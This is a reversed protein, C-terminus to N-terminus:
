AAAIAVKAQVADAQAYEGIVDSLNSPNRNPSWNAATVWAGDIYNPYQKLM